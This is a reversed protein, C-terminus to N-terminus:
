HLVSVSVSSDIILITPSSIALDDSVLSSIQGEDQPRQAERPAPAPTVHAPPEDGARQRVRGAHLAQHLLSPPGHGPLQGGPQARQHIGAAPPLLVGDGCRVTGAQGGTVAQPTQPHLHSFLLSLPPFTQSTSVCLSTIFESHNCCADGM